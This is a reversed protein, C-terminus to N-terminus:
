PLVGRERLAQQFEEHEHQFVITAVDHKIYLIFVSDVAVDVPQTSAKEFRWVLRARVMTYYEDLRTEDLSELTTSAHGLTRFLERGRSLAVLVARKETVRAGNPDAFMFADPYQTEILDPEFTNRSREYRRFFDRVVDSTTQM